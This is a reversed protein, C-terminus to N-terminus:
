TAALAPFQRCARPCQNSYASSPYCTQWVEAARHIPDLPPSSSGRTLIWTDRTVLARCTSLANPKKLMGLYLQTGIQHYRCTAQKESEIMSGNSIGLLLQHAVLEVEKGVGSVSVLKLQPGRRRRAHSEGAAVTCKERIAAPDSKPRPFQSKQAPVNPYPTAFARLAMVQPLFFKCMIARNYRTLCEISHPPELLKTTILTLYSASIAM